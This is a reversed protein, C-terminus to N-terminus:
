TSTDEFLVRRDGYIKLEAQHICHIIAVITETHAAKLKLELRMNGKKLEQYVDPNVRSDNCHNFFYTQLGKDFNNLTIVCDRGSAPHNYIGLGELLALVPASKDLDDQTLAERIENEDELCLKVSLLSFDNYKTSVYAYSGVHRASEIFTIVSFLPTPGSMFGENTYNQINAPISLYTSTWKRMKYKAPTEQLRTELAMIVSDPVRIKPIIIEFSHIVLKYDNGDKTDAMTLIHEPSAKTYKFRISTHTPLLEDQQFLPSMISSIWTIRKSRHLMAQKSTVNETAFTTTDEHETKSGVHIGALLLENDFERRNKMIRLYTAARHLLLGNADDIVTGNVSIQLNSFLGHVGTWPLCMFKEDGEVLKTGNKKVISFVIKQKIDSPRVLDLASGAWFCELIPNNEDIVSIPHHSVNRVFKVVPNETPAVEFIRTLLDPETLRSEPNIVEVDARSRKAESPGGETM